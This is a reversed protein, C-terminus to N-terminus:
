RARGVGGLVGGPKLGPDIYPDDNRWFQVPVVGPEILEMQSFYSEVQKATRLRMSGLRTRNYVKAAEEQREGPAPPTETYAHTIVLYGGPPLAERLVAVIREVQADDPLLHLIAALLIAFPRDLDLHNRVEPADLISQPDTVDGHVAITGSNDALLARAHVLVVPDHDVYVTKADPTVRRAVQHVNEQTPLGAGIDLFQTIGSEVLYRVARGLFARNARAIHRVDAGHRAAIKMVEEAAERDAAFNDKGGLYYDYMRAVNPVTPDVGRPAPERDLEAMEM